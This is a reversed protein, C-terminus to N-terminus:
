NLVCVNQGNCAYLLLIIVLFIKAFSKLLPERAEMSCLEVHVTTHTTTTLILLILLTDCGKLGKKEWM